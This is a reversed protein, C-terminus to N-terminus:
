TKRRMKTRIASLKQAFRHYYKTHESRTEGEFVCTRGSARGLRSETFNLRPCIGVCKEFDACLEQRGGIGSYLAHVVRCDSPSKFLFLPNATTEEWGEPWPMVLPNEMPFNQPELSPYLIHLLFFLFASTGMIFLLSLLLTFIM